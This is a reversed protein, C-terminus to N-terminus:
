CFVAYSINAHSSNLRTCKRDLSAISHSTVFTLKDRGALALEGMAAGLRLGPNVVADRAPGCLGAMERARSLLRSVDVGLLAAPSRFLATYPLLTSRPPRRIM